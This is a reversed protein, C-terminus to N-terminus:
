EDRVGGCAATKRSAGYFDHSMGFQEVQKGHHIMSQGKWREELYTSFEEAAQAAPWLHNQYGALMAKYGCFTGQCPGFGLRTRRGIDAITRARLPYERSLVFEIEARTVLECECVIEALEPHREIAELVRDAHAGLRNVLKEGAPWPLADVNHRLKKHGIASRM